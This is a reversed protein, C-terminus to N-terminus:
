EGIQEAECAIGAAYMGHVVQACRTLYDLALEPTPREDTLEDDLMAEYDGVRCTFIV